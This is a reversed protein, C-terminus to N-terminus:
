QKVSVTVGWQRALQDAIVWEVYSMALAMLSCTTAITRCTTQRALQGAKVWVVYSIALAMFSCTTAITGYTTQRALQDAKVWVVYSISLDHRSKSRNHENIVVDPNAFSAYSLNRCNYHRVLDETGYFPSPRGNRLEELRALTQNLAFLV